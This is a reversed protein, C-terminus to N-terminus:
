PTAPARQMRRQVSAKADQTLRAEPAGQSVAHLVQLAEPSGLRELIEVARLLRLRDPPPVFGGYTQLLKAIRRRGELSVPATAAKRLAPLAVEGLLNLETTAQERVVFKDNELNEILQVIHGAATKPVPKLREKLFPLSDQPERVMAWMARYARFADPAALDTWFAEREQKTLSMPKIRQPRLLQPGDWLLATTDWSATAISKGDPSIAMAVVKDKHAPILRIDKATPLDWVRVAGDVTGLILSRSDASFAVSAVENQSTNRVRDAGHFSVKIQFREKRSVMEWLRVMRVDRAKADNARLNSPYRYRSVSALTRGDPSFVIRTIGEAMSLPTAPEPASELKGFEKGTTPDWLHIMDGDPGASALIRGNPSFAVTDIRGTKAEFQHITKGAAINWLKVACDPMGAGSPFQSADTGEASALTQGDPSFVLSTIERFPAKFQHLEKGTGAQWIRITKDDDGTALLKGDPSYAVTNVKRKHGLLAGVKEGTSTKWLGVTQDHSATALIQGDPAFAIASLEGQHRAFPSCETGDAVNWLRITREWSGTSAITRGDPSFTFGDIPSRHGTLRRIEKGTAVDWLQIIGNPNGSGSAVIKGDPSFRIVHVGYDQAALRHVLRRSPWEWLYTASDGFTGGSALLKGTPSFAVAYTGSKHGALAPLEKGTSVEWLRINKQEGGLAVTRGDPTFVVNYAREVRFRHLEKGTVADRLCLLQYKDDTARDSEGTALTKGDRNLALRFTGGQRNPFHRVLKGTATDWFRVGDGDSATLLLKGDASWALDRVVGGDKIRLLEKGTAANWLRITADYYGGGSALTKGDPSFAICFVTGQHSLRDSGLRRLVYRPLADGLQVDVLPAPSQAHTRDEVPVGCLVTLVTVAIKFKAGRMPRLRSEM